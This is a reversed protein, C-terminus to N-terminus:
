HVNIPLFRLSTVSEVIRIGREESRYERWSSNPLITAEGYREVLQRRIKDRSINSRLTWIMVINFIDGKSKDPWCYFIGFKGDENPYDYLAMWPDTADLEEGTETWDWPGEEHFVHTERAKLQELTLSFDLIPEEFYDQQTQGAGKNEEMNEESEDKSCGAALFAAMLLATTLVRSKM